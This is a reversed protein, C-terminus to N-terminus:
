VARQLKSFVAGWLPSVNEPSRSNVLVLVLPGEQQVTVWGPISVKSWDGDVTPVFGVCGRGNNRISELRTKLPDPGAWKPIIPKIRDKTEADVLTM